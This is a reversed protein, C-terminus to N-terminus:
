IQFLCVQSNKLNLNSVKKVYRKIKIQRRYFKTNKYGTEFVHQKVPLIEIKLRKEFFEVLFNYQGEPDYTPLNGRVIFSSFAFGFRVFRTTFINYCVTKPDPGNKGRIQAGEEQIGRNRLHFDRKRGDIVSVRSEEADEEQDNVSGRLYGYFLRCFVRKCRGHANLVEEGGLADRFNFEDFM